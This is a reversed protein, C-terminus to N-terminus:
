SEEVWRRGLCVRLFRQLTLAKDWRPPSRYLKILCSDTLRHKTSNSWCSRPHLIVCFILIYHSHFPTWIIQDIFWPNPKNSFPTCCLIATWHSFVSFNCYCQYVVRNPTILKNKSVGLDDPKQLGNWNIVKWQIQPNSKGTQWTVNWLVAPNNCKFTLICM